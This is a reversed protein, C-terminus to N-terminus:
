NLPAGDDISVSLGYARAKGIILQDIQERSMNKRDMESLWQNILQRIEDASLQMNDDAFRIAPM